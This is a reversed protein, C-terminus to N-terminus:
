RARWDYLWDYRALLAEGGRVALALNRAGAGVGGLHYVIGNTRAARQVRATRGRRLGEYARLASAPDDSDRALCAALVAADEIAMAGGQALFPLMPHAADGLLTVPGSGWHRLSPRDNLSWTLWNEPVALLARATDHWGSFRALLDARAGLSSWGRMPRSDRVIAVVNIQRGAKVPYHVLHADAGLWLFTAPGRLAPAVREADILARWATRHRFRPPRRDGLKARMTSWLGDAGVLAVGHEEITGARGRAVVTIGNGHVAYDEVRWGLRLVFDPTAQLTDILAAQLDGRHVVWYPAGYRLAAARGLLVRAIERGTRAGMINIAEPAVALPALRASLGIADLIATANPSLQIGAGTEVLREAQELVVARFGHRILALALTLGGIGAGAIVVTRSRAM